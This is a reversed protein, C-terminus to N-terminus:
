PTRSARSASPAGSAADSMEADEPDATLEPGAMQADADDGTSIVRAVVVAGGEDDGDFLAM